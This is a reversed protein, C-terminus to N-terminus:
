RARNVIWQYLSKLREEMINWHYQSEYAKRGNAGLGQRKTIDNALEQLAEELFRRDGYPIVIGCQYREVIQDMHTDKAVIVPKALMMAEFLKNPSSFRHNPILPDYTAILVDAAASLSLAVEYPVRGHWRVNEMQSALALIQEQDGGFGALDLQWEPHRSIVDLLQFLGREKQLLGVYAIRLGPSDGQRVSPSPNKAQWDQPSNYIIALHRPQSGRIQEKRSEDALIVADAQGIAWFDVRRICKKIWQPTRRLHDAYFDFIDYVLPKNWIKKLFLAPLVTDFDCAHIVDYTHRHRILWFLLGAQWRLLQPLNGLGSGYQARISLRHIVWSDREEREKLQGTRDWGLVQVRFGAHSLAQAIKEVRPDPAVPNSRCILIRM